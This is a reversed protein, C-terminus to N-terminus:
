STGPRATRRKRAVKSNARGPPSSPAPSVSNGMADADPRQLRQIREDILGMQGADLIRKLSIDTLKGARRELEPAGEGEAGLVFMQVRVLMSTSRARANREVLDAYPRRDGRKFHTTVAETIADANLALEAFGESAKLQGAVIQDVAEDFQDLVNLCQEVQGPEVVERVGERLVRRLEEQSAFRAGRGAIAAECDAREFISPVKLLYCPGPPASALEQRCAAEAEDARARRAEEDLEEALAAEIAAARAAGVEVELLPWFRDPRETSLPVLM